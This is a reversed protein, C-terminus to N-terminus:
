RQRQSRRSSYHLRGDTPRYQVRWRRGACRVSPGDADRPFPLLLVASKDKVSVVQVVLTTSAVVIATAGVAATLADGHHIDDDDGAAAAAAAAVLVLM